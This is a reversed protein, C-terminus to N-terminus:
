RELEMIAEDIHQVRQRHGRELGAAKEVQTMHWDRLVRLEDAAYVTVPLASGTRDNDSEGSPTM